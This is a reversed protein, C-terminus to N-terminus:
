RQVLQFELTLLPFLGNLQGLLMLMLASARTYEAAISWFISWLGRLLSAGNSAGLFFILILRVKGSYGGPDALDLVRLGPVGEIWLSPVLDTRSDPPWEAYIAFLVVCIVKLLLVRTGGKATLALCDCAEFHLESRVFVLSYFLAELDDGLCDVSVAIEMVFWILQLSPFELKM